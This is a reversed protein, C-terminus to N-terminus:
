PEFFLEENLFPLYFVYKAGFREGLIVPKKSYCMWGNKKSSCFIARFIVLFRGLQIGEMSFRERCISGAVVDEWIPM